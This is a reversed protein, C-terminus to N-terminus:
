RAGEDYNIFVASWFKVVVSCVNRGECVVCSRVICVRNRQPVCLDAPWRLDHYCNCYQWFFRRKLSRTTAQYSRMLLGVGIGVGVCVGLGIGVGGRVGANFWSLQGDDDDSYWGEPYQMSTSNMDNDGENGAAQWLLEYHDTSIQPTLRRLSVIQKHTYQHFLAQTKGLLDTEAWPLPVFVFWFCLPFIWSLFHWFKLKTMNRLRRVKYGFVYHM